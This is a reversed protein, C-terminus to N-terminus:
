QKSNSQAAIKISLILRHPVATLGEESEIGVHTDSNMLIFGSMTKVNEINPEKYQLQAYPLDIETTEGAYYEQIMSRGRAAGREGAIFSLPTQVFFLIIMALFFRPSFNRIRKGALLFLLVSCVYALITVLPLQLFSLPISAVGNAVTSAFDPPGDGLLLEYGSMTGNAFALGFFYLLGTFIVLIQASQNWMMKDPDDM